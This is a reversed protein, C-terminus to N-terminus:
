LIIDRSPDIVKRIEEILYKPPKRIRIPVSVEDMQVSVKQIGSVFFM